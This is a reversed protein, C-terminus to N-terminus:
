SDVTECKYPGDRGSVVSNARSRVNVAIAPNGFGGAQGPVFVPFFGIYNISPQNSALQSPFKLSLRELKCLKGTWKGSSKTMKGTDISDYGLNANCTGFHESRIQAVEGKM